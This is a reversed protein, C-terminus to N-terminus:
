CALVKAEINLSKLAEEMCDRNVDILKHTKLDMTLLSITKTNVAELLSLVLLLENKSIFEKFKDKLSNNYDPGKKPPEKEQGHQHAQHLLHRNLLSPSCWLAPMGMVSSLFCESLVISLFECLSVM